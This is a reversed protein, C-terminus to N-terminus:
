PLSHTEMATKWHTMDLSHQLILESANVKAEKKELFWSLIPSIRTNCLWNLICTPWKVCGSLRALQCLSIDTVSVLLITVPERVIRVLQLCNCSTSFRQLCVRREAGLQQQLTAFHQMCGWHLTVCCRSMQCAVRFCPLWHVERSADGDIIKYKITHLM